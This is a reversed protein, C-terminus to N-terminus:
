IFDEEDEEAELEERYAERDLEDNFIEVAESNTYCPDGVPSSFRYEDDDIDYLSGFIHLSIGGKCFADLFEEPDFDSIEIGFDDNTVTISCEEDPSANVYNDDDCVIFDDTIEFFDDLEGSTIYSIFKQIEAKTGTVTIEFYLEEHLKM